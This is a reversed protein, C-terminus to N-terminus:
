HSSNLRTSKRDLAQDINFLVSILPLRSPDRAVKLKRLLTDFTYRQHDLADLLTSQADDIAAAVPQASDLEFLLPLTNVCHGVLHDHGDVSQGAAPIGVVVQSQSSLRSLLAAFSALLTAFLSVGRWAGMKRIAAVLEADLVYDGRASAFGRRAPRPRDTPLDLVPM